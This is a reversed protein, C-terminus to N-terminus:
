VNDLSYLPQMSNAMTLFLRKAKNYFALEGTRHYKVFLTCIREYAEATKGNEQKFQADGNKSIYIRTAKAMILAQKDIILIQRLPLMRENYVTQSYHLALKIMEFQRSVKESETYITDSELAPLEREEEIEFMSNREQAENENGMEKITQVMDVHMGSIGFFMSTVRSLAKSGFLFGYGVGEITKGIVRGFIGIM